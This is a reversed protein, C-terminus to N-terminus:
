LNNDPQNIQVPSVKGAKRHNIMNKKTRTKTKVMNAEGLTCLSNEYTMEEVVLAIAQKLTGCERRTIKEDIKKGRQGETFYPISM